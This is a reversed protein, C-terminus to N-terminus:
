GTLRQVNKNEKEHESNRVNDARNKGVLYKKKLRRLKFKKRFMPNNRTKPFIFSLSKQVGYKCKPGVKSLTISVPSAIWNSQVVTAAEMRSLQCLSLCSCGSSNQPLFYM